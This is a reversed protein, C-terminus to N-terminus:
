GIVSFGEDLSGMSNKQMGSNDIIQEGNTEDNAALELLYHTVRSSSLGGQSLGDNGTSKDTVPSISMRCKMQPMPLSFDNLGEGGDTAADIDNDLVCPNNIIVDQM